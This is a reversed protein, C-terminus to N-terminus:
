FINLVYSQLNIATDKLAENSPKDSTAPPCLTYINQACRKVTALRRLLGHKAYEAAKDEQFIHTTYATFLDDHQVLLGDYREVLGNIDEQSFYM